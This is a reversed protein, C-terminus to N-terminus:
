FYLNLIRSGSFVEEPDPTLFAGSGPDSDPASSASCFYDKHRFLFPRKTWPEPDAGAHIRMLKLQQYIASLNQLCQKIITFIVRFGNM